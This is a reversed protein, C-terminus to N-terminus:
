KQKIHISKVRSGFLRRLREMRSESKFWAFFLIVINQKGFMSHLWEMGLIQFQAV